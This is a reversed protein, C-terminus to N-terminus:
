DVYVIHLTDDNRDHVFSFSMDDNSIYFQKCFKYQEYIHDKRANCYGDIFVNYYCDVLAKLKKESLNLHKKACAFITNLANDLYISHINKEDDTMKVIAHKIKKGLLIHSFLMFLRDTSVCRMEFALNSILENKKNNRTMYNVVNENEIVIRHTKNALMGDNFFNVYNGRVFFTVFCQGRFFSSRISQYFDIRVDIKTGHFNVTFERVNDDSIQLYRYTNKLLEGFEGGFDDATWILSNKVGMKDMPACANHILIERVNRKRVAGVHKIHETLAYDFHFINDNDKNLLTKVVIKNQTNTDM